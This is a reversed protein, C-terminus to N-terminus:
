VFPRPLTISPQRAYVPQLTAHTEAGAQFRALALRALTVPARTPPVGSLVRSPDTPGRLDSAGEGCFRATPPADALLSQPTSLGTAVPAGHGEYKAWAVENRGAPILAYLPSSVSARGAFPASEIDYTTVGLTPLSRPLALGIAASIGVRVASFGGPGLAVAIHTVDKPALHMRALVELVAPMLEVGHNQESRWSREATIGGDVLM